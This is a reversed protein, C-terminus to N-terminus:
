GELEAIVQGDAEHRAAETELEHKAEEESDLEKKDDINEVSKSDAEPVTSSQSELGDTGVAAARKRRWIFFAAAGAIAVAAVVGIVIGAIAGPSLSGSGPTGDVPAVFDLPLPTWYGSWSKVFSSSTDKQLPTGLLPFEWVFTGKVNPGPGQAVYSVNQVYDVAVTASQLFARGLITRDGPRCPFYPTPQNVIPADLTHNLLPFPVKITTNKTGDRLVFGLYAPSSVLQQYRPSSTKWTYFEIDPRWEVPLHAAIADCNNDSLTIYASNATLDALKTGPAADADSVHPSGTRWVSKPGDSVKLAADFPSGGIEVGLVIDVLLAEPRPRRSTINFVAADDLVRQQDYANFLFSGDGGLARSGLNMSFASMYPSSPAMANLPQSPSIGIKFSERALGLSGSRRPYSHSKSTSINWSTAIKMDIMTLGLKETPDYFLMGDGQYCEITNDPRPYPTARKLQSTDTQSKDPRAPDAYVIVEDEFDPYVPVPNDYWWLYPAQWQGDPDTTKMWPLRIASGYSSPTAAPPPPSSSSSSPPADIYATVAPTATTLPWLLLLTFGHTTRM